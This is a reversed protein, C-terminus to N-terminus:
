ACAWAVVGSPAPRCPSLRTSGARFPEIAAGHQKNNLRSLTAWEPAAWAQCSSRGGAGPNRVPGTCDRPRVTVSRVRNRAALESTMHIFLEYNWPKIQVRGEFLHFPRGPPAPIGFKYLRHPSFTPRSETKLSTDM